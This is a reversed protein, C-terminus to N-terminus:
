RRPVGAGPDAAQNRRWEVPDGGPLDLSARRIAAAIRDFTLGHRRLTQESVEVSIEDGRVYLLEVQSIGDLSAIGDRVGLAIEKLSREDADGYIAIQLATTRLTPRQVIPRKAEAPFTSISAVLTKVEDNVRTANASAPLTLTVTCTGERSVSEMRQIGQVGELTEEIRLCVGTEVEEPAAGPYDVTIVLTGLDIAPLGEQRLQTVSLGGGLLLLMMLLNAAVPNRVFWAIIHKM